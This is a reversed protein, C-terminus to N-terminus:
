LFEFSDTKSTGTYMLRFQHGYDYCLVKHDNNIYKIYHNIYSGNKFYDGIYM